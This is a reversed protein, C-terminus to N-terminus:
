EVIVQFAEYLGTDTNSMNTIGNEQNYYYGTPYKVDSLNIGQVVIKDWDIMSFIAVPNLENLVSILTTIGMNQVKTLM